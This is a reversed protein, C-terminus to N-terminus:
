ISFESIGYIFESSIGVSERLNIVAHSWMGPVFVMDGPHQVCEWAAGGREEQWWAWVSQTLYMARDPPYLFWRRQGYILLNWTDRQFHMASGSLAPGLQLHTRTPAIHTLNPNLAEPLKFGTLVPSDETVDAHVSTPSVVEEAKAFLKHEEYLSKMDSLFSKLTTQKGKGAFPSYPTEFESVVLSGLEQELRNRQWLHFLSRMAHSNTANRILVPRQLALYDYLFTHADPSVVVDFDCQETLLEEPLTVGSPLWGGQLSHKLPPSYKTPSPCNDPLNQQFADAMGKASWKQLCAIQLATRNFYDIDTPRLGAQVLPLVVRYSGRIAAIHLATHALVTRVQPDAEHSLLQQLADPSGLAAAHLLPSWGFINEAFVVAGDQVLRNIIDQSLICQILVKSISSLAVSTSFNFAYSEDLECNYALEEWVVQGATLLNKAISIINSDLGATLLRLSHATVVDYAQSADGYGQEVYQYETYWQLHKIGTAVDGLGFSFLSYALIMDKDNEPGQLGITVKYLYGAKILQKDQLYSNLLIHFLQIIDDVDYLFVWEDERQVSISALLHEWSPVGLSMELYWELCRIAEPHYGSKSLFAGGSKLYNVNKPDRTLAEEMFGLAEEVREMRLLAVALNWRPAANDPEQLACAALLDLASEWRSPPQHDLIDKADAMLEDCSVGSDVAGAEEAEEQEQRHTAREGRYDSPLALFYVAAALLLLSVTALAVTRCGTLFRSSTDGESIQRRRSGGDTRSSQGARRGGSTSDKGKQRRRM